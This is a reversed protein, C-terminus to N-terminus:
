ENKTEGETISEMNVLKWENNQRVFYMRDHMTDDLKKTGRILMHKVLYVECSFADKNYVVFNKVQEETFPPNALTHSSTFTIDVGIAWSYAYKSLNSGEILYNKITGYGYKDGTLDKSLFLSWNEAIKMIDPMNEITNKATEEDEIKQFNIEKKIVGNEEQYDVKNGSEDTISIEPKKLLGKIEYSVPTAIEVYKSIETLGEQEEVSARDEEDLNLGNITVNYTSPVHITYNYLGNEMNSKINDLSWLSFTLLGLRYMKKTGDLSIELIKNEKYYVDYVPHDEETNEQQKYTINKTDKLVEKLSEEITVNDKEFKSKKITSLNLIHDSLKNKESASQLEKITDNLYNEIQNNEYKVLSNGVYILFLIMLIALIISYLILFKQFKTKEKKEKM